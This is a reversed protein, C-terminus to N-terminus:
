VPPVPLKKWRHGAVGKEMFMSEAADLLSERTAEAEAKTKRAM